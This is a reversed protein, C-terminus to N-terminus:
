HHVRTEPVFTVFRGGWTAIGKLQQMIEDRLNWPLIAVFDPHTEFIESPDKVPLHSGPLFRGQKELSRDAVYPIDESSLECFNLFTNGKAAAGYAVVIKGDARTDRLFKRVSHRCTEVRPSFGAYTDIRGLGAEQEDLQLGRLRTTAERPAHESAAWIRLSGGHTSLQEVDFVRLGHHALAAEATVLSFYSFHEHYITDFQVDEILRLLHPAEISLVGSPKLLIALGAIFDHLDPVHALVNNAVLLDAAYGRARLDQATERGLFVSETAIGRARAVEAINAAPEIGLVPIGSALFHQLLYGDNSAAEMVLSDPGLGLDSVAAAAFRRAHDVWSDSYSSFYAYDEFLTRPTVVAEIQVLLCKDCVRAHLPYRPEEDNLQESRLYANALPTEGLDVFTRTVDAECLRCRISSNM